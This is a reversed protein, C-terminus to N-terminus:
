EALVFFLKDVKTVEFLVSYVEGEFIWDEKVQLHPQLHAPKDIFLVKM